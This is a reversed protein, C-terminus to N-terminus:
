VTVEQDALLARAGDLTYRTWDRGSRDHVIKLTDSGEIVVAVDWRDLIAARLGVAAAMPGRDYQNTLLTKALRRCLRIRNLPHQITNAGRKM